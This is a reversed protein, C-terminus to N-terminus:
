QAFILNAATFQGNELLEGGGKILLSATPGVFMLDGPEPDPNANANPVISGLLELSVFKVSHLSIHDYAAVDNKLQKKAENTFDKWNFKWKSNRQKLASIVTKGNTKYRKWDLANGFKHREKKYRLGGERSTDSSLALMGPPPQVIIMSNALVEPTIEPTGSFDLKNVTGSGFDVIEKAGSGIGQYILKFINTGTGGYFISNGGGLQFWDNGGEGMIVHEGFINISNDDGDGMFVSDNGCSTQIDDNGTGGDIVHDVVGCSTSGTSYLKDNGGGGNINIPAIWGSITEAGDGGNVTGGPNQGLFSSFTVTSAGTGLNVTHTGAGLVIINKDGGGSSIIKNGTGNIVILDAGDSPNVLDDGSYTQIFDEGETGNITDTNDTGNCTGGTCTILDAHATSAILLSFLFAVLKM